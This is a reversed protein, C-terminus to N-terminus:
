EGGRVAEFKADAELAGIREQIFEALDELAAKTVAPEVAMDHFVREIARKAQEVLREHAM